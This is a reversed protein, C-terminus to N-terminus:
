HFVVRACFGARTVYGESPDDSCEFTEGEDRWEQFQEELRQTFEERGFSTPARCTVVARYKPHPTEPMVRFGEERHSTPTTKKGPM